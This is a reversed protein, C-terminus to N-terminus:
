SWRAESKGRKQDFFSLRKGCPLRHVMEVVAANAEERGPRLVREPAPM